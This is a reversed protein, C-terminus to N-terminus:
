YKTQSGKTKIVAYQLVNATTTLKQSALINMLIVNM